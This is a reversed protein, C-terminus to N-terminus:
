PQVKNRQRARERNLHSLIPDHFWFGFRASAPIRRAPVPSFSEEITSILSVNHDTAGILLKQEGIMVLHVSQKPSLRITEVLSCKGSRGETQGPKFGAAFSSLVASL